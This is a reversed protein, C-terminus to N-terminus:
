VSELRRLVLCDQRILRLYDNASLFNKILFVDLFLRENADIDPQLLSTSFHPCATESHHFTAM